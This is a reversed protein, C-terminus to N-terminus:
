IIEVTYPHGTFNQYHDEVLKKIRKTYDAPVGNISAPCTALRLKVERYETNIRAINYPYIKCSIPRADTTKITNLVRCQNGDSCNKIRSNEGSLVIDVGIAELTEKNKILQPHRETIFGLGEESVSHCCSQPCESGLCTTLAGEM